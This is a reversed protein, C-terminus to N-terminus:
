GDHCILPEYMAAPAGALEIDGVLRVDKVEGGRPSHGPLAVCGVSAAPRRGTAVAQGLNHHKASSAPCHCLAADSTVALGLSVPHHHDCIM